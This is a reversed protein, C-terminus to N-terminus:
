TLDNGSESAKADELDTGFYETVGYSYIRFKSTFVGEDNLYAYLILEAGSEAGFGDDDEWYRGDPQIEWLFMFADETKEFESRFRVCPADSVDKLYREILEPHEFGPFDIIVGDDDIITRKINKKPNTFIVEAVEGKQRYLHDGYTIWQSFTPESGYDKKERM